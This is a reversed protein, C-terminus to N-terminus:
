SHVGCDEPLEPDNPTVPLPDVTPEVIPNPDQDNPVESLAQAQAMGLVLVVMILLLKM